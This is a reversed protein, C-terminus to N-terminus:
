CCFYMSGLGSFCFITRGVTSTKTVKGDSFHSCPLVDEHTPSSRLSSTKSPVLDLGLDFRHEEIPVEVRGVKVSLVFTVPRSLLRTHLHTVDGTHTPTRCREHAHTHSMERARCTHSMETRPVCRQVSHTKESPVQLVKLNQHNSFVINLDRKTYRCLYAHLNERRYM